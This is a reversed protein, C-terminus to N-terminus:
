GATAQHAYPLADPDDALSSCPYTFLRFVVDFCPDRQLNFHDPMVSGKFGDDLFDDAGPMVQDELHRVLVVAEFGYYKRWGVPM